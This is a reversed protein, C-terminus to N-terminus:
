PANTALHTACAFPEQTKQDLTTLCQRIMQMAVGDGTLVIHHHLPKRYFRICHGAKHLLFCVLLPHPDGHVGLAALHNGQVHPIAAARTGLAQPRLNRLSITLVRRKVGIM